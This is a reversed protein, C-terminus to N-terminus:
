YQALLKQVLDDITVGPFTCNYASVKGHEVTAEVKCSSQGNSLEIVYHGPALAMQIPTEGAMKLHNGKEDAVNTVQGWPTATLEVFGTVNRSKMYWAGVGAVVLAVVVLLLAFAIWRPTASTPVSARATKAAAKRRKAPAGLELRPVGAEHKRREVEELLSKVRAGIEPSANKWEESNLLETARGFEMQGLAVQAEELLKSWREQQLRAAEKQVRERLALLSPDDTYLRLAQEVLSEASELDEADMYKKIQEAAARISNVRDLSQRCQSYARQFDEDKFYAKPARDFLAIAKAAEGSQLLQLAGAVIEKRRRVFNEQQERADALVTEIETSKAGEQARELIQIAEDFQLERLHSQARSLIDRTREQKQKEAQRERVFQLLDVLEASQGTESLGKELTEIAAGFDQGRLQDNARGLAERRLAERASQEQSERVTQLYSSLRSDDPVERTARELVALASSFENKQVFDRAAQLQEDVYSRKREAEARRLVTAHLKLVQSEDPFERVAQESAELALNLRGQSLNHEIEALRGALLKRREEKERSSQVLRILSEVELNLADLERAGALLELAKEFNKEALQARANDLIQRVQRLREQEAFEKAVSDMMMLATSNRPDIALVAELEAKAQPFKAESALKEARELHSRIKESRERQEVAFKKLKAAEAHKPELRLAEELQGVAEDYQEAQLAEKALRISSELRQARQRAQLRERVEALLSQALEHTSDIELVKQFAEKAVAFDGADLSHKGQDMYVDLTKRRVGDAIRRLELAMEEASQYREERDKALAREIIQQLQPPCQPIYKTIPEPPDNLIKSLIEPVDEGPFPLRATLLEYLVVGLSFVDSRADVAQGQVQEPSMYMVTGLVDGTRTMSSVGVRAIGFDVIKVQGTSSVVINGPKVDRHVVGHRHAYELGKCADIIIQLKELIALERRDSIIKQLNEGELFEMAIFPVGSAEDIEYITVINPHTLQAAAQAERYFRKLLNPNGAVEANTTKLAVLRGLRPDEAKYVVGMAGSGLESHIEYKGLKTLM